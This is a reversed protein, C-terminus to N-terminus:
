YYNRPNVLKANLKVQFDPFPAFIQEEIYLTKTWIYTKQDLENEIDIEEISEGIHADSTGAFTTQNIPHFVTNDSGNSQNGLRYLIESKMFSLLEKDIHNFRVSWMIFWAQDKGALLTPDKTLTTYDFSCDIVNKFTTGIAETIEIQKVMSIRRIKQTDIERAIKQSRNWMEYIKKVKFKFESM